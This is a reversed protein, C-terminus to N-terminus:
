HQRDSKLIRFPRSEIRGEEIVPEAPEFKAEILQLVENPEVTSGLTEVVSRFEDAAEKSIGAAAQYADNLEETDFPRQENKIKELIKTSLQRVDCRPDEDLASLFEHQEDDPLRLMEKWAEKADERYAIALLANPFQDKHEPEQKADSGVGKLEDYRRQFRARTKTPLVDLINQRVDESLPLDIIGSVTGSQELQKALGKLYDIMRLTGLLSLDYSKLADELESGANSQSGQYESISAKSGGQYGTPSPSKPEGDRRESLQIAPPAIPRVPSRSPLRPMSFISDGTKVNSEGLPLRTLKGRALATVVFLVTVVLLVILWHWISFTGM